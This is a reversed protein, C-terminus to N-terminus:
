RQATKARSGSLECGIHGVLDRPRLREVRYLVPDDEVEVGVSRQTREGTGRRANEHHIVFREQAAPQEVVNVDGVPGGEHFQDVIRRM